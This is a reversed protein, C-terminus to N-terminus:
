TLIPNTGDWPFIFQNIQLFEKDDPSAPYTSGTPISASGLWMDAIRGVRGKSGVSESHASLPAIAYAGSIDSIAGGNAAVVTTSGGYVETGLSATYNNTRKGSWSNSTSAVHSAATPIVSGTTGFSLGKYTLLSDSVTEFLYMLLCVGSGFVLVRTSDGTSSMQCSVILNRAINPSIIAANAVIAVEDTATARTSVSGGTFGAGHSVYVNGYGVGSNNNLDVLLQFPGGTGGIASQQFVIWSHSSTGPVVNASTLWLDSADVTTSDCSRVVTWPNTSFGTLTQKILFWMNIHDTEAVGSTALVQNVNFQWTKELTPLAM